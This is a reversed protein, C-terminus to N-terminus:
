EERISPPSEHDIVGILVKKGKPDVDLILVNSSSSSVVGYLEGRTDNVIKEIKEYDRQKDLDIRKRKLRRKLAPYNHGSKGKFSHFDVGTYVREFVNKGSRGFFQIPQIVAHKLNSKAMKREIIRQNKMYAIASETSRFKRVTVVTSPSFRIVERKWFTPYGSLKRKARNGDQWSEEFEAIYKRSVKKDPFVRLANRKKATVKPM